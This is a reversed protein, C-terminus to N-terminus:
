RRAPKPPSPWRADTPSPTEGLYPSGPSGDPRAQPGLCARPAPAAAPPATSLLGLVPRAPTPLTGPACHGPSPLARTAVAQPETTRGPKVIVDSRANGRM